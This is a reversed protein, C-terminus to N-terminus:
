PIAPQRAATRPWAARLRWALPLTLLVVGAIIIMM